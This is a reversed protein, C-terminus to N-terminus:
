TVREQVNSMSGIQEELTNGPLDTNCMINLLTGEDLISGMAKYFTREPVYIQADPGVILYNGASAASLYRIACKTTDRNQFDKMKQVIMDSPVSSNQWDGGGGRPAYQFLKWIIRPQDELIRLIFELYECNDATVLTNVKLTFPLDSRKYEDILSTVKRFHGPCRIRDNLEAIHGDLPVSLLSLENLEPEHLSPLLFGNTSLFCMFGGKRVLHIFSTWDPHVLPEGGSLNICRCGLSKLKPLSETFLSIPLDTQGSGVKFCGRCNLNCRTTVSYVIYEYPIM